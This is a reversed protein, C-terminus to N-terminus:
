VNYTAPIDSTEKQNYIYNKENNMNEMCSRQQECTRDLANETAKSGKGGRKTILKGDVSVFWNVLNCM